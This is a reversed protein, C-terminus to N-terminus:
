SAECVGGLGGEFGMELYLSKNIVFIILIRYNKTTNNHGLTVVYIVLILSLLFV